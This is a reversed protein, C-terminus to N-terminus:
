SAPRRGVTSILAPSFWAFRPDDLLALVQELESGTIMEAAVLQESMRELSIRLWDISGTGGRMLTVRGDAHVDTLGVRTMEEALRRGYYMDYGARGMFTMAANIARTIVEAGYAWGTTAPAWDMDEVVLYGGPRLAAAMRALATDREPLHELVLRCHVLDFAGEPLADTTVDHRVPELTPWADFRSLVVWIFAFGTGQYVLGMAVLIV